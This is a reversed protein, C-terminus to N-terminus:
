RTIGCSSAGWHMTIEDGRPVAAGSKVQLDGIETGVSLQYGDGLYVCEHVRGSITIGPPQGAPDRSLLEATDARLVLQAAGLGAEGSFTADASLTIARRDGWTVHQLSGELALVECPVLNANGMFEAVFLSSPRDHIEEAAGIQRVRGEGLV